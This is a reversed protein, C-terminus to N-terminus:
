AIELLGRVLEEQALKRLAAMNIHRFCEHCHWVVENGQGRVVFFVPQTFMIHLLYLCNAEHKVRALLLGNPERIKMMGIDIDIKYGAENLQGISVINTALRSIFHVGELSQCEGNKCMFVVTEHGEIQAVSDDGFHVTGLVATDLKTFTERCDSMHNTVKTELVWTGADCEKQEELHAYVKEEKLEIETMYYIVEVMSGVMSSAKPHTVTATILLSGEEKDQM